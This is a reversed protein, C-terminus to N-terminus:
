KMYWFTEYAQETDNFKEPSHGIQFNDYDNLGREPKSKNFIYSSFLVTIPVAAIIGISGVVSKVIEVTVMEFNLLALTGSNYSTLLLVTTLSSGIYALILTNIMTGVADKGINMGSSVMSKFSRHKMKESLEQMSSAITMAVDMVAGLSGIIIGAFVLSILDLSMGNSLNLLYMDDQQVVGNIKFIDNSLLSLIGAVVVGGVNGVIASWTKKNLGNLIVLSLVIIIIASIWTLSYVNSGGLVAPVFCLLMYAVTFALSVIAFFGKSRGLLVVLGLFLLVIGILAPIRNHQAYVFQNSLASDYTTQTVVINDGVEVEYSVMGLMVDHHQQVQVQQGELEGSKITASFETIKGSIIEDGYYDLTTQIDTGYVETVEAQYFQQFTDSSPQQSFLNYGVVVVVIAIVIAVIRSVIDGTNQKNDM